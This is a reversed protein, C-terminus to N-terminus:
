EKDKSGIVEPQVTDDVTTEEEVVFIEKIEVVLSDLPSLLDINENNLEPIDALTIRDGLKKGAMDIIVEELLYDSTAKYQVEYILHKIAGPVHDHNALNIKVTGIVKEGKILEQFTLHEVNPTLPVMTVEKLITLIDKGEYTLIATSGAAKEKLFSHVEKEPVQIMLSPNFSKGYICGPIFGERRLRKPKVEPNRKMTKLDSM